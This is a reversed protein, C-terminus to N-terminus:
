SWLLVPDSIAENERRTLRSMFPMMWLQVWGGEDSPSAAKRIVSSCITRAMKAYM